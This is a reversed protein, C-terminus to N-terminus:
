LHLNEVITHAHNFAVVISGGNRTILDGGVFLGKTATECREDVSPVGNEDFEVGCKKLFDVPSTGGIAYIIRDYVLEMGNTFKVLVKGSENELAEIDLGLRLIIDGNRAEKKIDEENIENLRTFSEKRYCLTVTNTKCLSLAYEAASNGGGVVLVKENVSCKDLNFNVRQTISPPIKYSPKNPKGMRGISIIVNRAVFGASATTICFLGGEKKEVKEVESNFYIDIDGHDLLSDFYDLVSEKTGTEFSITGKTESDMGKYEKDVRKKDKYFQRITQSHNDGKELLLVKAVGKRKAEVVAAIGCPGGGIVVVDYVNIM